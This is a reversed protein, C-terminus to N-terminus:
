KPTTQEFAIQITQLCGGFSIKTTQVSIQDYRVIPSSNFIFFNARINRYCTYFSHVDSIQSQVQLTHNYIVLWVIYRTWIDEKNGHQNHFNRM